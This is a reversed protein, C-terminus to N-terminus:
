FDNQRRNVELWHLEVNKLYPLQDIYSNSNNINYIYTYINNYFYYQIIIYKRICYKERQM